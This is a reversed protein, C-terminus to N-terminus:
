RVVYLYNHDNGFVAKGNEIAVGGLAYTCDYASSSWVLSANPTTSASPISICYGAGAGDNTAFFIYDVNKSTMSIPDFVSKTCVVPSCQVSQAFPTTGITFSLMAATGLQGSPPPTVKAIGKAAASYCGVYINGSDAIVPTSTSTGPLKAAWSLSPTGNSIDYCYFNGQTSGSSSQTTFYIKNNTSDLMITSRVNGAANGDVDPLTITGGSSGINSSSRYFLLGNDSGFYVYSGKVAAGAWYFNSKPTSNYTFSGVLSGTKSIQYYTGASNGVYTGFYLNTGDTTIPTNIQGNVNDYITVNHVGTAASSNLDTVKQISAKNSYVELTQLEGTGTTMKVTVTVTASSGATGTVNHNIYWYYDYGTVTGSADYVPQQYPKYSTGTNTGNTRLTLNVTSGGINLTADGQANSGSLKIGVAVRNSATELQSISATLTKTTGNPLTLPLTPSVNTLAYKDSLSSALYIEDQSETTGPVLLPTSLQFGSGGSVQKDWVTYPTTASCNIKALHGGAAHGDYLVYAYTTSGVTRMVPVSDVGDWGGGANMLAIQTISPSTGTPASSVVANHSNTKGFTTWDAFAASTLLLALCLVLALTKFTRKM